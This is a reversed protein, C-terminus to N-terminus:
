GTARGRTSVAHRPQRSSCLRSLLCTSQYRRLRAHSRAISSDSPTKALERPRRRSFSKCPRERERWTLRQDRRPCCCLHACLLALMLRALHCRFSNVSDSTCARPPAQARMALLVKIMEVVTDSGRALHEGREAQASNGARRAQTTSASTTTGTPIIHASRLAEDVPSATSLSHLSAVPSCSGGM